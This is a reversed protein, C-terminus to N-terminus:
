STEKESLKTLYELLAIDAVGLKQEMYICTACRFVYCTGGEQREKGWHVIETETFSDM